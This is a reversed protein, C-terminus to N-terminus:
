NFGEIFRVADQHSGRKAAMLGMAEIFPNVGIDDRSKVDALMSAVAGAVDGADLYVRARRKFMWLYQERSVLPPHDGSFFTM